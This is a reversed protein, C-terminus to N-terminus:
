PHHSPFAEPVATNSLIKLPLSTLPQPYSAVSSASTRWRRGRSIGPSAGGAAATASRM